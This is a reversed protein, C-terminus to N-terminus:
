QLTISNLCISLIWNCALQIDLAIPFFTSTTVTHSLFIKRMSGAESRIKSKM